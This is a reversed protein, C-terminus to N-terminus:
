FQRVSGRERIKPEIWETVIGRGVQNKISRLLLRALQRGLQEPFFDVTTLQPGLLEAVDTGDFGVVSVDRPIEMGLDHAARYAGMAVIDNFCILATPRKAPDQLVSIATRYGDEPTEGAEGIIADGVSVNHALLSEVFGLQRNKAGQSFAPGALHGLRRHGKEIAYDTALTMGQRDDIAVSHAEVGEIEGHVVLPVHEDIIMKAHEGAPGEAGKFLIYGAPRYTQLSALTGPDAMNEPRVNHLLVHYGNADLVESIGRFAMVHFPNLGVNPVLVAVMQSLEGVLAKAVIGSAYNEERICKLVRWRTIERVHRKGNLVASVTSRSLGCLRAIESTTVSRKASDPSEDKM